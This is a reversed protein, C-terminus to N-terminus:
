RRQATFCASLRTNVLIAALLIAGQVIQVYFASVHNLVLGNEMIGLLLAGLVTGVVTGHGGFLGTGGLVVATIVDLTFTAGGLNSSGSGLQTAILIGSVSAALGSLVYVFFGVRRINVGNRRLSEANSGLSVVYRGFPTCGLVVWGLVMTGVAILAAVPIPGIQGQGLQTVWVTSSIPISYGNTMQLAVGSLLSFTALTVIFPPMKQYASFYGNVAGIFAGTALAALLALTAGIGYELMLALGAGTVAVTSGVSLDIGATTIVFTMAVAVIVIPAIQYLVNWLNAPTAFSDATVTFGVVLAAFVLAISITHAYQGLLTKARATRGTALQESPLLTSM